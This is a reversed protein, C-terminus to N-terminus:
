FGGEVASTRFHFSPIQRTWCCGCFCAPDREGSLPQSEQPVPCIVLVAVWWWPLALTSTISVVLDLGERSSHCEMWVWLQQVSTHDCLLEALAKSKAPVPWWEWQCCLCWEWWVKNIRQEWQSEIHLSSCSYPHPDLGMGSSIMMEFVAHAPFSLTTLTRM